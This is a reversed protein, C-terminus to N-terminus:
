QIEHPPMQCQHNLRHLVPCQHQLQHQHHQHHQQLWQQQHVPLPASDGASAKPPPPPPASDGASAAPTPKPPPASASPKPASAAADAQQQKEVPGGLRDSSIQHQQFLNCKTPRQPCPKQPQHQNQCQHRTTMGQNKGPRYTPM